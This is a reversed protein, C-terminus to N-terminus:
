RPAVDAHQQTSPTVNRRRATYYAALDESSFVLRKGSRGHGIEGRRALARLTSQGMRLRAAGESLTFLEPLAPPEANVAPVSRLPLRSLSM